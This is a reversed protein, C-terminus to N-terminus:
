IMEMAYGHNTTYFIQKIKAKYILETCRRCPKALGIVFRSDTSSMRKARAIYLVAGALDLGKREATFICDGEAHLCNPYEGWSPKMRPHTKNSNFGSALVTNRLAVIAALKWKVPYPNQQALSYTKNLLAPLM